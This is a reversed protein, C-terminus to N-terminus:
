GTESVVYGAPALSGGGFIIRSIGTSPLVLYAIYTALSSIFM